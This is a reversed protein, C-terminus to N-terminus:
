YTRAKPCPTAKRLLSLQASSAPSFRSAGVATTNSMPFCVVLNGPSPRTTTDSLHLLKLLSGYGRNVDSSSTSSSQSEPLLRNLALAHLNLALAPGPVWILLLRAPHM